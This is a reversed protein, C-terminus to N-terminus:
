NVSKQEASIGRGTYKRNDGVHCSFNKQKLQIPNLKITFRDDASYIRKNKKTLDVTLGFFWLEFVAMFSLFSFCKIRRVTAVCERRQKELCKIPTCIIEYM